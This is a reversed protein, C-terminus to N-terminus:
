SRHTYALIKALDAKSLGTLGLALLATAVYNTGYPNEKIHKKFRLTQVVIRSAIKEGVLKTLVGADELTILLKPLTTVSDEEYLSRILAPGIGKIGIVSQVGHLLRAKVMDPCVSNVCYLHAGEMVTPTGCSPCAGPAIYVSRDKPPAIVSKVQPIVSGARVVEVIAGVRLGESRIVNQVSHLTIASIAVGDITVPDNFEAVPVIVGTRGVGHTIKSVVGTYIPDEFKFAVMSRPSHLTAGMVESMKRDELKLVVGDIPIGIARGHSATYDIAALVDTVHLAGAIIDSGDVVVDKYIWGLASFGFVTLGSRMVTRDRYKGDASLTSEYPAFMLKSINSELVESGTLIGFAASRVNKYPTRCEEVQCRNVSELDVERLFVEGYVGVWEDEVDITFPVGQMKLVTGKVSMGKLGDGRLVAEHLEGKHYQIELSLGDYKPEVAVTFTKDGFEKKLIKLYGMVGHVDYINRLSLMPRLHEVVNKKSKAGVEEASVKDLEKLRKVLGDYESDSILSEGRNFYADRYRAIAEKM